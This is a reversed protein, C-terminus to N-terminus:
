LAKGGPEFDLRFGARIVEVDLLGHVPELEM